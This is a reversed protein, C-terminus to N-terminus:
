ALMASSIASSVVQLRQEVVGFALWGGCSLLPTQQFRSASTQFRV